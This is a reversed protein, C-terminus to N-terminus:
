GGTQLQQGAAPCTRTDEVFLLKISILKRPSIEPARSGTQDPDIEKARPLCM